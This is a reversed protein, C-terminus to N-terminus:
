QEVNTVSGLKNVHLKWKSDPVFRKFLDVDPTSYDYTKDNSLFTIQYQEGRNGERQGSGLQLEPWHPNLDSGMARATRIVQWENVTYRCWDEYVEYECEQVVKGYGSGQDKVYSTGCVEKAGPVPEESSYRYKQVCSGPQAGSPVEDHWAEYTVPRQELVDITQEWAVSKVIGTQESTQSLFVIGGIVLGCAFVVALIAVIGLGKRAPGAAGAVARPAAREAASRRTLAAGCARCKTATGPNKAGCSPCAVDPVSETQAAGLVAGAARATGEALPAGCQVCIEADASNRAGCYACHIDPGVKARKIEVEASVLEQQPPLEFQQDEPQPAGCSQCSKAPGPNITGCRQCTWELRVYGVTKETM